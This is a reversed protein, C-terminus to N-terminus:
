GKEEAQEFGKCEKICIALKSTVETVGEMIGENRTSLNDTMASGQIRLKYRQLDKGRTIQSSLYTPGSRSSEQFVSLQCSRM